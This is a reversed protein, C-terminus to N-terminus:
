KTYVHWVFPGQNFTGRYVGDTPVPHGTGVVAVNFDVRAKNPEVQFWICSTGDPDLGVHLLQAYQPVCITQERRAIEIPFKWITTM